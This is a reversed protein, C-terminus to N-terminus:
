RKGGEVVRLRGWPRLLAPTSALRVAGPTLGRTQLQLLAELGRREAPPLWAADAAITLRVGRRSADLATALASGQASVGCLVVEVRPGGDLMARLDPSSFASPQERHYVPESPEPGLGSLPRWPTQGPRPRRSIVHGIPWGHQRAHDLLQAANACWADEIPSAQADSDASLRLADLCLLMVSSSGHRALVESM